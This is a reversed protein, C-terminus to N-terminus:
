YNRKNAEWSFIFSQSCMMTKATKQNEVPLVQIGAKIAETGLNVVPECPKCWKRMNTPASDNWLWLQWRRGQESTHVKPVKGLSSSFIHTSVLSPNFWSHLAILGFMCYSQWCCSRPVPRHSAACCSSQDSVPKAIATLFNNCMQGVSPCLQFVIESHSTNM